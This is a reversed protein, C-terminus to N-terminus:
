YDIEFLIVEDESGPPYAWLGAGGTNYPGISLESDPPLQQLKEIL